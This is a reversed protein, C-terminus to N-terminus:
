KEFFVGRDLLFVLFVALFCSLFSSFRGFGTVIRGRAPESSVLSPELYFEVLEIWHM